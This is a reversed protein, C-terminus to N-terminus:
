NIELFSNLISRFTENISDSPRLDTFPIGMSNARKFWGYRPITPFIHIDEALGINLGDIIQADTDLQERENLVIGLLKPPPTLDLEEIVDSIKAIASGLQLTKAGVKSILITHTSAAIANHTLTDFGGRTDLLVVDVNKPPYKKLLRQLVTEKGIRSNLLEGTVDAHGHTIQVAGNSDFVSITPWDGAFNKDFIKLTTEGAVPPEDVGTFMPLSLNQDLDIVLVRLGFFRWALYALNTVLCTKGSGGEPSIVSLVPPRDTSQNLNAITKLSPMKPKTAVKVSEKM